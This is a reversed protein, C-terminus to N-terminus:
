RAKHRQWLQECKDASFTICFFHPLFTLSHPCRQPPKSFRAEYESHLRHFDSLTNRRIPLSGRLKCPHTGKVLWPSESSSFQELGSRVPSPDAARGDQWTWA